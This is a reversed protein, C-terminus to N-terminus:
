PTECMAGFNSLLISLDELTVFQDGDIDGYTGPTYINEASFSALLTTLDHLDVDEDGDIDGPCPLHELTFAVWSACEQSGMAGSRM